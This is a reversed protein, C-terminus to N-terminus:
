GLQVTLLILANHYLTRPSLTHSFIDQVIISPFLHMTHSITNPLSIYDGFHLFHDGFFLSYRPDATAYQFSFKIVGCIVAKYSNNVEVIESSTISTTTTVTILDAMDPFNPLLSFQGNCTLVKFYPTTLKKPSEIGIYKIFENSKTNM